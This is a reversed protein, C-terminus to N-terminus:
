GPAAAVPGPRRPGDASGHEDRLPVRPERSRAPSARPHGRGHPHEGCRGGTKPCCFLLPAVPATAPYRPRAATPTTCNSPPTAAPREPVEDPHRLLYWGDAGVGTHRACLSRALKPLDGAPADRAWTLLFDNGAGQAELLTDENWKRRYIEIVPADKLAIMKVCEYRPGNRQARLMATAVADGSIAVAWRKTCSCTPASSPPSTHPANGSHLTERLPIGAELVIGTLDGFPILIGGGHYHRRLYDAAEATWARREVSNVQSEKWCVWSDPIPRAFWPATVALVVVVAAIRRMRAPCLTVLAALGLALLPLATLGYRTNYYSHPWLDPVFIPTGSSYM